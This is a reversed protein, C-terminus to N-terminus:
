GDDGGDKTRAFAREITFAIASPGVSVRLVGPAWDDGGLGAAQARSFSLVDFCFADGSEIMVVGVSDNV